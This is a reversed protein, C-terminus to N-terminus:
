APREPNRDRQVAEAPAPAAAAALVAGALACAAHLGVAVLLGLAARSVGLVLGEVLRRAIGGVPKRLPLVLAVLVAVVLIDPVSSLSIGFTLM